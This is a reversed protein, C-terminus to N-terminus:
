RPKHNTIKLDDPNHIYQYAGKTFPIQVVHKKLKALSEGCVMCHKYGLAWRKQPIDDGCERCFHTSSTNTM